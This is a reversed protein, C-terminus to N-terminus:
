RIELSGLNFVPDELTFGSNSLRLYVDYSGTVLNIAGGTTNAGILCQAMHGSPTTVWSGTASDISTWDALVPITAPFKFLYTVTMSTPDVANGTSPDTQNIIVGIYRLDTSAILM